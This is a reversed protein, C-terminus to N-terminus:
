KRNYADKNNKIDDKTLKGIRQYKELFVHLTSLASLQMWHQMQSMELVQYAAMITGKSKFKM